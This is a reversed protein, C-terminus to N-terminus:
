KVPLIKVLDPSTATESVITNYIIATDERTLNDKKIIVNINDSNIGISVVVEEYGKAKLLNELLMELEMVQVLKIKLATANIRAQEYEAGQMAIISELSIIEQNRSEQREQRYTSFFNGTTQTDDDGNTNGLLAVNLYAAVGLIVVMAVLVFIKKRTSM